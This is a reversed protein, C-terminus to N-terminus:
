MGLLLWYNTIWIFTIGLFTLISYFIRDLTNWYLKNDKNGFGRWSFISFLVMLALFIIVLIPFAMLGKIGAITHAKLLVIQNSVRYTLGIILTACTVLGFPFLKPIIEQINEMKKTRSYKIIAEIVWWISALLFLSGIPITIYYVIRTDDYIPHIKELAAVSGFLNSYMHSVRDFKNRIFAIRFDYTGTAEVFYDEEVQVFDLDVGELRLYGNNIEMNISYISNLYDLPSITITSNDWPFTIVKETYHRRTNLYTGEFFELNKDYNEIPNIEGSVFPFFYEVFSALFHERAYIGSFTNYSIFFGIDKEPFLAMLSHFEPVDGGHGIIHIENMDMEYVGFGIGQLNPHPIFQDDLMMQVTENQLIQTGNFHGNDMLAIMLNSIDLATSSCSAAPVVSMLYSETEYGGFGYSASINNQLELPVPQDFTSHNMGLPQFIETEIYTNFDIGSMLEVLYGVLTLGYNSYSTIIGPPSFRDPIGTRCVEELSPFYKTSNFVQVFASEEFGATHTLLHRLTIPDRFTDPIQFTTLYENVDTDLDLIGDEVLQLAAIATFTKSISGVKFITEDPDVLELTSLNSFGFGKTLVLVNNQIYSFTVGALGFTFNQLDIMDDLFDEMESPTPVDNLTYSISNKNTIISFSTSNVGKTISSPNNSVILFTIIFVIGIFTISKGFQMGHYKRISPKM